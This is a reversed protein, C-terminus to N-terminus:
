PERLFLADQAADRRAPVDVRRHLVRAPRLVLALEHDGDNRAEALAVQVRIQERRVAVLATVFDSPCPRSSRLASWRARIRSAARSIKKRSPKMAALRSSTASDAPEAASRM